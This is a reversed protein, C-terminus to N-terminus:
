AADVTEVHGYAREEEVVSISGKAIFRIRIGARWVYEGTEPNWIGREVTLGPQDHWPEERILKMLNGRGTLRYVTRGDRMYLLLKM